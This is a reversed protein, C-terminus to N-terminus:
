KQVNGPCNGPAGIAADADVARGIRAGLDM